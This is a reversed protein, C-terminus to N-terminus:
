RDANLRRDHTQQFSIASLQFRLECPSDFHLLEVAYQRNEGHQRQQDRDVREGGLHIHVRGRHELAGFGVGPSSFPLLM